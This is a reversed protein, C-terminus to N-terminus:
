FGGQLINDWGQSTCKKNFKPCNSKSKCFKNCFFKNSCSPEFQHQKIGFWISLVEAGAERLFEPTIYIIMKKKAKSFYFVFKEPLFGYEKHFAMSYLLAQVNTRLSKKTYPKGTKYDIIVARKEELNGDIRDITGTIPLDVESFLSSPECEFSVESGIIENSKTQEFLWDLQEHISERYTEIEESSEFLSKDIADLKEDANGHLTIQFEENCGYNTWEELIGHVLIGVETYKTPSSVYEKDEGYEGWTDLFAFKCTRYQNLCTQRISLM